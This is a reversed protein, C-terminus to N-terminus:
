HETLQEEFLDFQTLGETTDIDWPKSTDLTVITKGAANKRESVIEYAIVGDQPYESNADLNKQTVVLVKEQVIHEKNMVDYFRCEVFGPQHGSIFQVIQIKIAKM